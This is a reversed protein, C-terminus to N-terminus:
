DSHLLCLLPSANRERAGWFELGLWLLKMGSSGCLVLRAKGNHCQWLWEVELVAFCSCVRMHLLLVYVSMWWTGTEFVKGIKRCASLALGPLPLPRRMREGWLGRSLGWGERGTVGNGNMWPQQCVSLATKLSFIQSRGSIRRRETFGFVAKAKRSKGVGAARHPICICMIYGHQCSIGKRMNFGKQM